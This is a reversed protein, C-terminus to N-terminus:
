PKLGLPRVSRRLDDIRTGELPGVPVPASQRRAALDDVFQVDARERSLPGPLRGGLAQSIERVDPDRGHFDQGDRIETTLKTPAIVANIKKGRGPQIATRVVKPSEDIPRMCEPDPHNEVDDVVM